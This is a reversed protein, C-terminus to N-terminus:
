GRIALVAVPASQVVRVTTSGRFIDELTRPGHSPMVILDIGNSAAYSCIQAHARGEATRSRAAIGAAAARGVLARVQEQDIELLERPSRAARRRALDQEAPLLRDDGFVHLLHLEANLARCLTLTADFAAASRPALDAPFLIRSPRTVRGHAPLALVPLPGHRLLREFESGLLIRGAAHPRRPLLALIGGGNAAIRALMEPVADPAVALVEPAWGPPLAALAADLRGGAERGQVAVITLPRDLAVAFGALGPLAALSEPSGSTLYVISGDTIAM